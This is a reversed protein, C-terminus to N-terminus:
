MDLPLSLINQYATVMGSLKLAKMQQLTEQQNMKHQM